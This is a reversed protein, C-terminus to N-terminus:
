PVSIEAMPAGIMRGFPVMQDRKSVHAWGNDLFVLVLLVRGVLGVVDM